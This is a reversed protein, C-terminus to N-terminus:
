SPRAAGPQPRLRAGSSGPPMRRGGRGPRAVLLEALVRLKAPTPGNRWILLVRTTHYPPALRHISLRVREAYADVVSRPLLAVGMGAAACGLMVHYSALEVLREVPVGGSTFWDELRQRYPCGPHFALLTRKTVDAPAGIRRHAAAAIIVLQEAFVELSELRADAVPALVLAADLEGALVQATLDQPTGTHLEVAVEPYRAHLLSLPRPLRVAATSEMAGLRLTGRPRGEHVAERAEEAMSLLREAYGLLVTGAPSLRLRRGERIFLDVGLKQELQKIRTTVNSQVRHLREAARIIGGEQVVARFVRLDSLEM